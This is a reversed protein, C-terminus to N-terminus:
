EERRAVVQLAAESVKREFEDLWELLQEDPLYYFDNNRRAAEASPVANGILQCLRLDPYKQLLEELRRVVAINNRPNEKMLRGSM